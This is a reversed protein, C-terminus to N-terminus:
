DEFFGHIWWAVIFTPPTLAIIPGFLMAKQLPEVDRPKWYLDYTDDWAPALATAPNVIFADVALAGNGVVIAAPALAIQAGASPPSVYRDVARLTRQGEKDFVACGITQFALAGCTIALLLKRHKCYM